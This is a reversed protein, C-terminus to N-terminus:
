VSATTREVADDGAVVSADEQRGTETAAEAYDDAVLRMESYAAVSPELAGDAEAKHAGVDAHSLGHAKKLHKELTAYVTFPVSCFQCFFPARTGRAGHTKMHRTLKSSQACAYNCLGCHYPREGTHSRRHVTLNSSNRFRKGCYECAEERKKRGGAAVLVTPGRMSEGERQWDRVVAAQGAQWEAERDSEWERPREDRERRKPSCDGSAIGSEGSGGTEGSELSGDSPSGCPSAQQPEGPAETEGDGGHPQVLSLLSRGGPVRGPEPGQALSVLGHKLHETADRAAMISAEALGDQGRSKVDREDGPGEEVAGQRHTRMHRALEGSQSFAQECLGCRYPRESAHTRRHASLSRLSQFRQGCLECAQLAQQRLPQPFPSAAPPSPSPSLVVGGTTGEALERLRVSFNLAQHDQGSSPSTAVGMPLRFSTPAFASALTSSLHRPDLTAVDAPKLWDGDEQYISLAHGHQAHQLLAWASHIVAECVQCTFSSPEEDARHEAKMYLDEGRCHDTAKRLEVYGSELRGSAVPPGRQLSRSAPSPPTHGQLGAQGQCVADVGCSGQKHQIFALIQALPFAQGCQGCTLLDRGGAEGQSARELLPPPLGAVPETPAATGPEPADQIASLHQPRSGLKRRSM